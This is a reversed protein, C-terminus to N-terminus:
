NGMLKDIDDQSVANQPLQPGNLLAKDPDAAHVNHLVKEPGERRHLQDGMAKVIAGIRTDIHKLTEVVKTIRQGTVDQFNCAEFIKTTCAVLKENVEPTCEGAIATMEDCVDMIRNTADETAGVVADLEDTADPIYTTSIDHPKISAIEHKAQRIYRALEELESYFKLDAASVDGELSQVVQHVVAAVEEPTLPTKIAEHAAAIEKQLRAQLSDQDTM